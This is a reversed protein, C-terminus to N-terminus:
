SMNAIKTHLYATIQQMLETLESREKSSGQAFCDKGGGRGGTLANVTDCLERMSFGCTPSSCMLYSLKGDNQSFLLAITSGNKTLIEAFQKLEGANFADERCVILKIGNVTEAQSLLENAKYGFLTLSREKLEKKTGSLEDGQKYVGNLVDEYKCSFRKALKDILSQREISANVARMGCLFWLRVGGKYNQWSSLMIYGIEGTTRCHTGCCTCSDVNEIYVIRVEGTLGSARKRLEIGDLEDAQVFRYSIPVNKQVIINAQKVLESLQEENLPIDLDITSYGEAMHFGVNKANFMSSALGSLVHEGSHQQSHDRRREIDVSVTVNEGIEFQRSTINWIEEKREEARLVVAENLRGTDSPQGGGEPFIVTQDLLVAYGDDVKECALVVASCEEMWTDEYYMKKTM